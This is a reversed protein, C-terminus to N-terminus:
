SALRGEVLYCKKALRNALKENHTVLVLSTGAEANLRLFVDVVEDATHPDLNGTPEDALVVSPGMVLARAIAVRQREGGSLKGPGHRLRHALGVQTLIARARSRAERRPVGALLCPMMVNEEADFEPLLHHSQFVFGLSRNRFAAVQDPPLATLDQGGYRVEGSTPRELGGLVHLLTSKGAGSVGLVAVSEGPALRLSLGSLVEITEDGLQFRKVVDRAELLESM